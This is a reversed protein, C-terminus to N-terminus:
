SCDARSPAAIAVSETGLPVAQTGHFVGLMSFHVTVADQESMGPTASDDPNRCARPNARFVFSVQREGDAPIRLPHFPAYRRQDYRDTIGLMPGTFEGEWYSPTHDVGTITIPVSASNHLDLSVVYRGGRAWRYVNPALDYPNTTQSVPALGIPAASDSGYSLPQVGTAWRLSWGVVSLAAVVVAAIVLSRVRVTV